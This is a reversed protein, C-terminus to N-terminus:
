AHKNEKGNRKDIKNEIRDLRSILDSFRDKGIKSRLRWEMSGVWALLIAGPAIVKEIIGNM